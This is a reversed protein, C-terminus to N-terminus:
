YVCNKKYHKYYTVKIVNPGQKKAGSGMEIMKNKALSINYLYINGESINTRFYTNTKHTPECM